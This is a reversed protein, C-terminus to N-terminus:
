NINQMIDDILNSVSDYTKKAIEKLNSTASSVAFGNFKKVMEYDNNNDGIVFINDKIKLKKLLTEIAKAKNVKNSTIEIYTGKEMSYSNIFKSYKKNLYSSVADADEKLKFKVYIKTLNKEEFSELNKLQELKKCCFFNLSKELQLDNKIQKIVKNKIPINSIIKNNKDLITAGNNLIVYDYTINNSEVKQMFHFYSRGTAIVFINEKRFEEVKKKNIELDQDDIYFTGDYDSFLIKKNVSKM